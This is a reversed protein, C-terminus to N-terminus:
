TYIYIYISIIYIYLGSYGSWSASHSREMVARSHIHATDFAASYVPEYQQHSFDGLQCESDGWKQHPKRLYWLKQPDRGDVVHNGCTVAIRIQSWGPSSDEWQGHVNVFFQDTYHKIFWIQFKSMDYQCLWCDFFFHCLEERELGGFFGFGESFFRFARASSSNDQQFARHTKCAQLTALPPIVLTGQPQIQSEMSRCNLNGTKM